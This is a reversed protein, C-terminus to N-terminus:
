VKMYDINKNSKSLGEYLRFLKLSENYNKELRDLEKENVGKECAEEYIRKSETVLNSITRILKM